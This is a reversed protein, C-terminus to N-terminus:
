YNIKVLRIEKLKFELEIDTMKMNIKFIVLRLQVIWTALYQWIEEKSKFGEITRLFTAHHSQSPLLKHSSSNDIFLFTDGSHERQFRALMNSDVVFM